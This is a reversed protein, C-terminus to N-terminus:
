ELRVTTDTVLLIEWVVLFVKVYSRFSSDRVDIIIRNYKKSVPSMIKIIFLDRLSFLLIINRM